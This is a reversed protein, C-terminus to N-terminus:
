AYVAQTRNHVEPSAVRGAVADLLALHERLSNPRQQELMLQVGEADRATLHESSLRNAKSLGHRQEKLKKYGHRDRRRDKM